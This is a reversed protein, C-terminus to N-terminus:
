LYSLWWYSHSKKYNAYWKCPLYLVVIVLLWFLYIYGLSFGYNDPPDFAIIQKYNFGLIPFTIINLVRIFYWHCVYYFLPVNGYVVLIRTLSNNINETLSLIIISLGLTMCLYLLSCPYKSVNFFSIISLMTTKQVSWPVPDGYINFYRLIFFLGLLLLDSALLLNKRKGANVSSKYLSGFMYGILMVGTWPLLAYALIIGRNATLPYYNGFGNSSVLLKWWFTKGTVGPDIHDFINHGFFIILGIVGIIPLPFWILFGLLIMSAGITAIVQFVFLHYGVNLTMAFNIVVFELLLLWTGRTILFKFLQTKTRRTGALCASIGSLFIFTPACFHTVWRSFFLFPTTTALNTADPHGLQLYDRCHDIAMILMVAGRLIDISEIRKKVAPAYTDAM